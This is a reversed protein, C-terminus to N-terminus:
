LFLPSFNPLSKFWESKLASTARVCTNQYMNPVTNQTTLSISQYPTQFCAKFLWYPCAELCGKGRPQGTRFPFRTAPMWTAAAMMHEISRICTDGRTMRAELIVIEFLLPSLRALSTSLRIMCRVACWSFALLPWPFVFRLHSSDSMSQMTKAFSFHRSWATLVCTLESEKAKVHEFRVQRRLPQVFFFCTERYSVASFCTSRFHRWLLVLTCSILSWPSVNDLSLPAMVCPCVNAAHLLEAQKSMHIVNAYM